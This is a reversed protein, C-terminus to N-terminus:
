EPSHLWGEKIVIAAIGGVEWGQRLHQSVRMRIHAEAMGAQDSWPM